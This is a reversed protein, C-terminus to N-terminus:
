VGSALGCPPAPPAGRWGDLSLESAPPGQGPHRGRAGAAGHSAQGALAEGQPCVAAAATDDPGGATMDLALKLGSGQSDPQSGSAQQQLCTRQRCNLRQEGAGDKGGQSSLTVPAGSSGHEERGATADPDLAGGGAAAADLCMGAVEQQSSPLQTDQSQLAVVETLAPSALPTPEGDSQSAAGSAAGGQPQTGQSAAPRGASGQGAGGSAGTGDTGQQQQGSAAQSGGAPARHSSGSVTCALRSGSGNGAPALHSTPTATSQSPVYALQRPKCGSGNDMTGTGALLPPDPSPAHKNPSTSDRQSDFLLLAAAAAVGASLEQQASPTSSPASSAPATCAPAHSQVPTAAVLCGASVSKMLPTPAAAHSSAGANFCFSMGAPSVPLAALSAMSMGLPAMPVGASVGALAAAPQTQSLLPGSGDMSSSPAADGRLAIAVLSHPDSRTRRIGLPSGQQAMLRGDLAAALLGQSISVSRGLSMTTVQPVGGVALPQVSGPLALSGFGVSPYATCPAPSLQTSFSGGMAAPVFASSPHGLQGVTAGLLQQNPAQMYLVRQQPLQLSSAGPLSSRVLNPVGALTPLHFTHPNGYMPVANSVGLGPPPMTGLQHQTTVAFSAAPALTRPMSTCCPTVSVQHQLAPYQQLTAALSVQQQQQMMAAVSAAQQQRQQQLVLPLTSALPPAQQPLPVQQLLLTCPVSAPTASYTNPRPRVSLSSPVQERSLHPQKTRGAFGDPLSPPFLRNSPPRAAVPAGAVPAAGAALAAQTARVLPAVHVNPQLSSTAATAGSAVLVPPHPMATPASTALVGASWRQATSHVVQGSATNALPTLAPSSGTASPGPLAPRVVCPATPVAQQAYSSHQSVFPPPQRQEAMRSPGATDATTSRRATMWGPTATPQAEGSASAAPQLKSLVVNCLQMARSVLDQELAALAAKDKALDKYHQEPAHQLEQLLTNNADAYACLNAAVQRVSGALSLAKDRLVGLSRQLDTCTQHALPLCAYLAHDGSELISQWRGQPPQLPCSRREQAEYVDLIRALLEAKMDLELLLMAEKKNKVGQLVDLGLLCSTREM